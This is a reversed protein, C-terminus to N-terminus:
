YISPIPVVRVGVVVGFPGTQVSGRLSGVLFQVIGYFHPRLVVIIPNHLPRLLQLLLLVVRGGNGVLPGHVLDVLLNVDVIGDDLGVGLFLQRIPLVNVDLILVVGDPIKLAYSKYLRAKGDM